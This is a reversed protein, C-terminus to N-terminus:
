YSLYLKSKPGSYSLFAVGFDFFDLTLRIRTDAQIGKWTANMEKSQHIGELLLLGEAHMRTLCLTGLEPLLTPSFHSHILVFDLAQLELISPQLVEMGQALSAPESIRYVQGKIVQKLHRTSTENGTGLELVQNAASLQCFYAFLIALKEEKSASPTGNKLCDLAGQYVSFIFPSQQSYQDEKLLWHKLYAFATNRIKGRM